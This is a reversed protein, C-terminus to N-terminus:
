SIDIEELLSFLSQDYRMIDQEKFNSNTGRIGKKDTQVIKAKKKGSGTKSASDGQQAQPSPVPSPAFSVKHKTRTNELTKTPSLRKTTKLVKTLRDKSIKPSKRNSESTVDSSQDSLKRVKPKMKKPTEEKELGVGPDNLVKKRRVFVRTPSGVSTKEVTRYSRSPSGDGATEDMSDSPSQRYYVPRNHDNSQLSTSPSSLKSVEEPIGKPFSLVKRSPTLEPSKTATAKFNDIDHKVSTQHTPSTYQSHGISVGDLSTFMLTYADDYIGNGPPVERKPSIGKPISNKNNNGNEPVTHYPRIPSASPSNRQNKQTKRLNQTLFDHNSNYEDHMMAELRDNKKEALIRRQKENELLEELEYLRQTTSNNQETEQNQKRTLNLNLSDIRQQQLKNTNRQETLSVRLESLEINQDSETKKQIRIMEVMNKLKAQYLNILGLLISNKSELGNILDNKLRLKDEILSLNVELKTEMLKTENERAVRESEILSMLKENDQGLGILKEVLRVVKQKESECLTGLTVDKSVPDKKGKSGASGSRKM